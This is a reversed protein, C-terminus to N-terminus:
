SEGIQTKGIYLIAPLPTPNPSSLWASMRHNGEYLQYKKSEPDCWLVIGCLQNVSFTDDTPFLIKINKRAWEPDLRNVVVKEWKANERVPGWLLYRGRVQEFTSEILQVDATGTEPHLDAREPFADKILKHFQCREDRENYLWWKKIELTSSLPQVRSHLPYRTSQDNSHLEAHHRITKYFLRRAISYAKNATEHMCSLTRALNSSITGLLYRLQALVNLALTPFFNTKFSRKNTVILNAKPEEPEKVTPLICINSASIGEPQM